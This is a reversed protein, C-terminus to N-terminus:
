EVQDLKRTLRRTESDFCYIPSGGAIGANLRLEVCVEQPFNMAVPFRDRMVDKESRKETASLLKISEDVFKMDTERIRPQLRDKKVLQWQYLDLTLLLLCSFM